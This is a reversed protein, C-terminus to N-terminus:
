IKFRLENNQEKMMGKKAIERSLELLSKGQAYAQSKLLRKFNEDVNIKAIKM